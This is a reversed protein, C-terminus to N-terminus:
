IGNSYNKVREVMDKGLVTVMGSENDRIMDKVTAIIQKCPMPSKIANKICVATFEKRDSCAASLGIILGLESTYTGLNLPPTFQGVDHHEPGMCPYITDTTM